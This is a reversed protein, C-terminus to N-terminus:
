KRRCNGGGRGGGMKRERETAGGRGETVKGCFIELFIELFFLFYSDSSNIQHGNDEFYIKRACVIRDGANM